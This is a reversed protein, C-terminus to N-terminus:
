FVHHDREAQEFDYPIENRSFLELILVLQDACSGVGAVNVLGSQILGIISEQFPEVLLHAAERISLGSPMEYLFYAMLVRADSKAGIMLLEQWDDLTLSGPPMRSCFQVISYRERLFWSEQPRKGKDRESRFSRTFTDSFM